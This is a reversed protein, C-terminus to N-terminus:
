NSAALIPDIISKLTEFSPPGVLKKGDVVFSPAGNFGYNYAENTSQTVKPSNQGSDLCNDFKAQDLGLQTAYAKLDNVGIAPSKAYLVDHYEWFKGQDLACQGAEAAKPSAATIVPFDKWVFRVKDGYTDRIKQLIGSNHWAQCSPCGYDSYEVITVKATESGYSPDIAMRAASLPEPRPRTLVFVAIAIVVLGIVGFSIITKRKDQQRRKQSASRIKNKPSEQPM